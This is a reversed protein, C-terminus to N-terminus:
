CSIKIKYIRDILEDNFNNVDKMISKINGAYKEYIKENNKRNEQLQQIIKEKVSNLNEIIEKIFEDIIKTQNSLYNSNNDAMQIFECDKFNDSQKELYEIEKDMNQIDKKFIYNSRTMSSTNINSSSPISSIANKTNYNTKINAIQSNSRTKGCVSNDSLVSSSSLNAKGNKNVLGTKLNGIISSSRNKSSRETLSDSSHDLKSHNLSNNSRFALSNIFINNCDNSMNRFILVLCLEVGKSIQELTKGEYDDLCVNSIYLNFSKLRIGYMVSVINKIKEARCNKPLDFHLFDKRGSIFLKVKNVAKFKLEM